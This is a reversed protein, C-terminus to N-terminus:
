DLSRLTAILVPVVTLLLFAPLVMFVLPFLMKVPATRAREAARARRVDRVDVALERLGEALSGGLRESRAIVTAATELDSLRLTGAIRRLEDRWREGIDVSAGAELLEQALPGQLGSAARRIAAPASLGAMSSAALLDLFQPIERDARAIRARSARRIVLDPVVFAGAGAILAAPVMSPSAATLLLAVGAACGVKLGVVDRASATWAAARLAAELRELRAMRRVPAAAAIREFLMANGRRPHEHPRRRMGPLLATVAPDIRTGAAALGAGISAAALLGAVLAIV